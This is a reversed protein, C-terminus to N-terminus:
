NDDKPPQKEWKIRSIIPPISTLFTLANIGFIFYNGTTWTAYMNVASISLTLKAYSTIRDRLRKKNNWITTDIRM